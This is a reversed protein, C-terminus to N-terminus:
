CSSVEYPAPDPSTMVDADEVSLLWDVKGWM